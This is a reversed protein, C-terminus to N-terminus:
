SRLTAVLRNPHLLLQLAAQGSTAVVDAILLAGSAAGERGVVCIGLDAVRQMDADTRGNGVVVIGTRSGAGQRLETLLRAKELGDAVRFLALGLESAAREATGYTDTTLVVCALRRALHKLPEVV